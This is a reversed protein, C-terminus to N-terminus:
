AARIAAITRETSFRECWRPHSSPIRVSFTRRQVRSARAKFWVLAQRDELPPLPQLCDRDLETIPDPNGATHILIALYYPLLSVARPYLYPEVQKAGGFRALAKKLRYYGASSLKCGSPVIGGCHRDIHELLGGLTRLRDDPAARQATADKRMARMEAIDAECADLLARL